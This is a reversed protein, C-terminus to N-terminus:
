DEVGKEDSGDSVEPELGFEKIMNDAIKKAKYGSEIADLFYSVCKYSNIKSSDIGRKKLEHVVNVIKNVEYENEENKGLCYEEAMSLPMLDMGLIRRMDYGIDADGHNRNAAFYAEQGTLGRMDGEPSMYKIARVIEDAGMSYRGDHTFKEALEKLEDLTKEDKPMNKLNDHLGDVFMDAPFGQLMNLGESLFTKLVKAYEYSPFEKFLRPIGNDAVNFEYGTEYAFTQLIDATNKDIEKNEVATHIDEIISVARKIFAKYNTSREQRKIVDFIPVPSCFDMCGREKLLRLTDAYAPIYEPDNGGDYSFWFSGINERNDILLCRGKVIEAARNENEANREPFKDYFKRVDNEMKFRVDDFSYGTGLARMMEILVKDPLRNKIEDGPAKVYKSWFYRDYDNKMSHSDPYFKIDFDTNKCIDILSRAIEHGSDVFGNFHMMAFREFQEDNLEKAAAVVDDFIDDYSKNPYNWSIGYDDIRNKVNEDSLSELVKKHEENIM